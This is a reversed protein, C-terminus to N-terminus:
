EAAGSRFILVQELHDPKFFFGVAEAGDVRGVVGTYGDIRFTQGMSPMAGLSDVLYSEVPEAPEGELQVGQEALTALSDLPGVIANPSEPDIRTLRDLVEVGEIVRGFVTHRGDLWPTAAFTIFFQSGNTDPGANAMSVVGKGDHSLDPVIEDAFAYGPGGRGTGTPDGTQAMFDELVRHFVIGEFYRHLALFVFNNVTAPTRDEFLDIVLGGASTILLARYNAGPELVEQAAEFSQVPQESLPALAEFGALTAFEAEPGPANSAEELTAPKPPAMFSPDEQRQALWFGGAVLLMAVGAVAFIRTM